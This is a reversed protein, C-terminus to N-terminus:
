EGEIEEGIRKLGKIAILYAWNLGCAITSPRARTTVYLAFSSRETLARM